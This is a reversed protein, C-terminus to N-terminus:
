PSPSRLIVKKGRIVNNANTKKQQLSAYKKRNGGFTFKRKISRKSQLGMIKDKSFKGTLKESRLSNIEKTSNNTNEFADENDFEYIDIAQRVTGKQINKEKEPLCKKLYESTKTQKSKNKSSLPLIKLKKM